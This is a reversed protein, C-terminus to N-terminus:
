PSTRRDVAIKRFLVIDENNDSPRRVTAHQTWSSLDVVKALSNMSQTDVIMWPCDSAEVSQKTQTHAVPKLLLQGHFEFAAGQARTLGYFHVCQTDGMMSRVKVVLPAYSRAFDLLPLWLTMVLLWCLTAGGAPLALSKWLVSQHRGARWKVLSGWALTAILAVSFAIASFQPSFGPALRSVNIAPQAPIGTHMSLWVTWIILAGASFFLLTFWDLFASVSRQLTPLAFAALTAMAPLALLLSRDSSGSLYTSFLTVVVFWLPLSLHPNAFLHRLQYRWRWMTWIALPWAPWTFWLLLRTMSKIELLNSYAIRWRWLDLATAVAASALCILLIWAVDVRRVRLSFPKNADMALILAGGAGLVMALAPAGSLTMGIIAILAFCLASLRRRNLNALAYFLVASFSLQALAPTAEHSLRALGLCALLALLGGDAVARAYDAPRAEGGFAFSVPQAAPSRALTYVGYWTAALTLALLGMFPLHAAADLPVGRPALQIAWAGLWYPLLAANPDHQQLLSPKLWSVAEPGYAQALHLMFGFAEMDDAKWPTRGVFGPLIYALCLMLLVWRPLRRVASQAVIAPNASSNSTPSTV